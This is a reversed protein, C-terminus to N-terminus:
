CWLQGRFLSRVHELWGRRCGVPHVRARRVRARDGRAPGCTRRGGCRDPHSRCGAGANARVGVAPGGPGATRSRVSPAHGVRARRAHCCHCAAVRRVRCRAPRSTGLREILGATRDLDNIWRCTRKTATSLQRRRREMSRGDKRRSRTSWRPRSVLVGSSTVDSIAARRPCPSMATPLRTPEFM